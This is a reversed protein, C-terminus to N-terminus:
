LKYQTESGKPRAKLPCLLLLYLQCAEASTYKMSGTMVSIVPLSARMWWLWFHIWYSSISQRIAITVSTLFSLIYPHLVVSSDCLTKHSKINTQYCIYIKFNKKNNNKVIFNTSRYKFLHVRTYKSIGTIHLESRTLRLRMKLICWSLLWPMEADLDRKQITAKDTHDQVDAKPYSQATLVKPYHMPNIAWPPTAAHITGKASRRCLQWKCPSTSLVGLSFIWSRKDEAWKDLGKTSPSPCLNKTCTKITGQRSAWQLSHVQLVGM